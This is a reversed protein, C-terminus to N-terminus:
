FVLMYKKKNDFFVFFPFLLFERMIQLLILLKYHKSYRYYSAPLHKHVFIAFYLAKYREPFELNYPTLNAM